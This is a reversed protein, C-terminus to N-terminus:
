VLRIIAWTPAHRETKFGNWKAVITADMIGAKEILNPPAFIYDLRSCM